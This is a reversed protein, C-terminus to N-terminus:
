IFLGCGEGLNTTLDNCQHVCQSCVGYASVVGLDKPHCKLVYYHIQVGIKIVLIWRIM